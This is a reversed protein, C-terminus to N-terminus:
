CCTGDKLIHKGYFSGVRYFFFPHLFCNFFFFIGRRTAKKQGMFYSVFNNKKPRLLGNVVLDDTSYILM